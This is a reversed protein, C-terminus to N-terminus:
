GVYDTCSVLSRRVGGCSEVRRGGQKRAGASGAVARAFWSARRGQLRLAGSDPQARWRGAGRPFSCRTESDPRSKPAWRAHRTRRASLLASAAANRPVRPSPLAWGGLGSIRVSPSDSNTEYPARTLGRKTSSDVVPRTSRARPAARDPSPARELRAPAGAGWSFSCRRADELRPPIKAGLASLADRAGQASLPASARPAAGRTNSAPRSRALSRAWRAPAKARGTGRASLAACVGPSRRRADELRPAIKAGSARAARGSKLRSKLAWRALSAAWRAPAKARGTGRASLAACVGPSRRRADELRPAIKAGSAAWPAAGRTKSARCSKLAWRALSGAGRALAGFRTGHGKRESRRLRGPLPAARRRPPARNQRGVRAGRAGVQPAIQAGLASLRGAGRAGQAFLAVRRDKRPSSTLARAGLGAGSSQLDGRRFPGPPRAALSRASGLPRAGDSYPGDDITRGRERPIPPRAPLRMARWPLPRAPSHKHGAAARRADSRRFRRAPALRMVRWPLPRAPSHRHGAAARTSLAARRTQPARARVRPTLAPPPRTRDARSASADPRTHTPQTPLATGHRLSVSPPPPRPYSPPQPQPQSPPRHTAPTSPLSSRARLGPALSAPSASTRPIDAPSTAARTEHPAPSLVACRTARESIHPRLARCPPCRASAPRPAHLQPSPARALSPRQRPLPRAACEFRAAFEGAFLRARSAHAARFPLAAPTHSRYHRRRTCAFPPPPPHHCAPM